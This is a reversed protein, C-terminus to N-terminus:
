DRPSPSTYLLCCKITGSAGSQTVYVPYLVIRHSVGLVTYEYRDLAPAVIKLSHYFTDKVKGPGSAVRGELVGMTANTLLAAQQSLLAVPTQISPEVNINGWLNKPM